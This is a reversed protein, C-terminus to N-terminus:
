RSFTEVALAGTALIRYTVVVSLTSEAVDLTVSSVAIVQGLWQQLNAQVVARLTSVAQDGEPMFVARMLGAGFDPRNVREGPNTFLAQEILDRVHDAYTASLGTSGRAADIAFPFALDIRM